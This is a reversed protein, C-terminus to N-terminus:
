CYLSKSSKDLFNKINFFHFERPLVFFWAKITQNLYCFRSLYEIWSFIWPQGSEAVKKDDDSSNETDLNVIIGFNEDKYDDTSRNTPRRPCRQTSPRRKRRGNRSRSRRSSSSSVKPWKQEPVKVSPTELRCHRRSKTRVYCVCREGLQYWAVRM